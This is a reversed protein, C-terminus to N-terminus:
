FDVVEGKSLLREAEKRWGKGGTKEALEVAIHRARVGLPSQRGLGQICSPCNTLITRPTEGQRAAAEMAAEIAATKRDLMRGTIDPRSMSMTGAESCCEPVATLELGAQIAVAEAKEELSDHCPRHYFYRGPAVPALGNEIAFRSIDTLPAGFIDHAGMELLADRCTGCSVAVGDFDLYAFMERIQSFLITDSLVQRDHAETKANAKLPFGCCLSPPPLIVRTGSRVLLYLSALGVDSFLRESGCGPFYFVTKGNASEPQFLMAQKRGYDPLYAPLTRSAAPPVPAKFLALIGKMRRERRIPLVRLVRSANRQVSGGLRVVLTRFIANFARSRSALYRLTMATSLVTEKKKRASLIERELVSVKATDIDVPCPKLCKHCMTCHDAVENLHRLLQFETTHFRQAEYLLAEIISAVALNKNRPHYFMDRAPFFVCCDPKCKGCRVCKSIKDALQELSGHQLIRAELELLNFSPTFVLDLVPLDELKLPNMIRDPDAIRHYEALERREHEEMYKLKTIGIGHEGSVVGGLSKVREMVRDVTAEARHMMERDNSFVPINVHVNGDGAHMHTAIVILRSRVEKFINEIASELPGYGSFLRRLEERMHQSHAFSRLEVPTAALLATTAHELLAQAAPLKSTLFSDDSRAVTAFHTALADITQIQSFREEEINLEDIFRAFAALQDLPLVTDENLKFANTRRAIAGLKKRDKWFEVGESADRAFFLETNPYPKLLRELRTQGRQLDSAAHAVIDILLVAKPTDARAAKNRYDIARVYEDDFHELAMLTEKGDNVFEGALDSIVRSAEDFDPGYFELCATAKFPYASHLVFRASTIVGDTGEKQMGPVGGLAKNTIDKWLGNKRIESGKLSIRREVPTAGRARGNKLVHSERVSFEVLDDPLIKRLPHGIREVTIESGRPTAMKWSLVNDICTGWLVATKGGANEAINGGVTCAWASTPDTAFVLREASAAHMAHETIVGTELEMVKVPRVNGNTDDLMCDSISRIANLKETNVIVCDPALPVAGGTLGTGAGRPIAKLGLRAIAALLPAVQSEKAPRAIALPLHLRWDTADTAHSILAFPDFYVNAEGIAVGLIRRIRTRRMEEQAFFTTLSKLEERCRNLIRHVAPNNAASREVANLDAIANKFFARRLRASDLLEQHLYPNRRLIFLDGIFRFLLKASRGTVRQDRLDNLSKWVDDGLVQRVVQEDDASTYNYPIERHSLSAMPYESTEASGSTETM